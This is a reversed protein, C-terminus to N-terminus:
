EPQSEPNQLTTKHRDVILTASHDTTSPSDDFANEDIQEIVVNESWWKAGEEYGWGSSAKCKHLEELLERATQPRNDRSKDLCRLILEDLDSHIASGLRKSSPSEPNTNLHHMCVETISKGQFPPAGTILFYGVAGLSYLDSRQDITDPSEIEEPSMYMPTGLLSGDQTLHTQEDSAVDKVLGFDLVKVVDPQGGRHTLMINAPKIDRHILGIDHAEALSGCVQSLIHIIRGEPLVGYRRVLNELTIGEILEMAYYFVGKPTRGYDYIVITNPHNLRSTLQVEREFRSIAASNSNESELVKIATPRRML